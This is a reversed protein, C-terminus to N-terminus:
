RHRTPGTGLHNAPHRDNRYRKRRRLTEDLRKRSRRTQHHAAVSGRRFKKIAPGQHCGSSASAAQRVRVRRREPVPRRLLLLLLLWHRRRHQFQLRLRLLLLWTNHSCLCRRDPRTQGRLGAERGRNLYTRHHNFNCPAQAVTFYRNAKSMPNPHATPSQTASALSPLQTPPEVPSAAALRKLPQEYIDGMAKRKLDPTRVPRQFMQETATICQEMTRGTPLQMKLWNPEINYPKLFNVLHGVDLNSTKIAEALIFRKEGETFSFAM